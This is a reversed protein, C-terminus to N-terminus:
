AARGMPLRAAIETDTLNPLCVPVTAGNRCVLLYRDAGFSGKFDSHAAAYITDLKQSHTM